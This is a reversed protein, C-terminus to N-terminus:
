TWARAHDRLRRRRRRLRGYAGLILGISLGITVSVIGILLSYRAGYVIRSFVDRGLLDVASGISPSPGRCCGNTLLDLNQEKPDYPAIVPAFVAVIVFVGVFVFGVVAGPNRILRHWAESWLGSPAELEIERAEIEAVSM